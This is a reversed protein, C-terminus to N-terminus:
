KFSIEKSPNELIHEVVFVDFLQDDEPHKIEELFTENFKTRWHVFVQRDANWRAEDANRCRGTYYAGHILDQKAIKPVYRDTM